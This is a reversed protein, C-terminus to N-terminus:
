ARIRFREATVGTGPRVGRLKAAKADAKGVPGIWAIVFIYVYILIIVYICIYINM